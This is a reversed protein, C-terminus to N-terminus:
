FDKNKYHFTKPTVSKLKSQPPLTQQDTQDYSLYLNPQYSLYLTGSRTKLVPWSEQRTHM